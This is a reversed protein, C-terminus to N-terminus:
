RRTAGLFIRRRRRGSIEAPGADGGGSKKGAAAALCTKPQCRRRFEAASPDVGFCMQFVDVARSSLV